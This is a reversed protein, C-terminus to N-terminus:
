DNEIPKIGNGLNLIIPQFGESGKVEITSASPLVFRCLAMISRFREVPSMKDLDRQLQEINNELLSQFIEKIETTTKNPIGKRSSKKGLERAQESTLPM